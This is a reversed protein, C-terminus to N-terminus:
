SCNYLRAKSILKVVDIIVQGYNSLSIRKKLHDITYIAEATIQKFSQILLPPNKIIKEVTFELFDYLM